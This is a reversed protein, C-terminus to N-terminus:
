RPDNLNSVTNLFKPRFLISFIITCSFISFLYPSMSEQFVDLIGLGAFIVLLFFPVVMSIIWLSLQRYYVDERNIKLFFLRYYYFTIAAVLAALIFAPYRVIPIPNNFEPGVSFVQGSFTAPSKIAIEKFYFIRMGILFFISITTMGIIWRPIKPTVLHIIALM